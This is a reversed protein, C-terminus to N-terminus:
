KRRVVAKYPLTILITTGKNVITKPISINGNSLELIKKASYLGLGTGDPKTTKFPKFLDPRFEPPIGVGNDQIEIKVLQDNELRRVIVLIKRDSENRMEKVAWVANNLINIVSERLYVKDGFVIYDDELFTHSIQWKQKTLSDNVYEIAPILIEKILYHDDLTPKLRNSSDMSSRVMDKSNSIGSRANKVEDVLEGKILIPRNLMTEVSLLTADALGLKSAIQHLDRLAMERWLFLFQVQDITNETSISQEDQFSLQNVLEISNVLFAVIQGIDFLDVLDYVNFANSKAFNGVKLVGIVNGNNSPDFLPILILSKEEEIQKPARVYEISILHGDGEIHDIPYERGFGKGDLPPPPDETREILLAVKRTVCHYSYGHKVNELWDQEYRKHHVLYKTFELCDGKRKTCLLLSVGHADFHKQLQELLGKYLDVFKLFGFQSEILRKILDSRVKMLHSNHLYNLQHTVESCLTMLLQTTLITDFEYIVFCKQSLHNSYSTFFLIRATRFENFGIELITDNQIETTGENLNKRLWESYPQENLDFIPKELEVSIKFKGQIGTSCGWTISKANLTELADRLFTKAKYKDYLILRYHKDFTSKLKARAENEFCKSEVDILKYLQKKISEEGAEMVVAKVNNNFVHSNIIPDSFKQKVIIITLDPDIEFDPILRNISDIGILIFKRFIKRDTKIYEIVENDNILIQLDPASRFVVKVVDIVIRIIDSNVELAAFQFM